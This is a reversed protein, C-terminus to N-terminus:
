SSMKELFDKVKSLFSTSDPQSEEKSCTAFEELLEKQRKSLNVPTEIRVEVVLDGMVGPRNLHPLGKGRMALRRGTQTGAPITLRARGKLTPVDLKGGLGAQAFTIPVHCLLDAGYREFMPHNKVEIMIFLDGAPGGNMGAGGEGTLRIRTGTDVGPPIKVTLTKESRQRGQGRCSTCPNRIIKGRGSCASCPRAISFFGQQARVQGVGGCTTCVEPGSGSQSGSGKCPECPIITPIRLREESGNMVTELDVALDYRFDEGRNNAGRGRGGGRGGFIDGFFEEFIDGFGGGPGGGYGAGGQGDQGLGAHGYQDYIARKKPDKLVEYASGIEKFRTEAEKDDPNRDPHHKMALKRFASKLGKDDVDRSVGLTEYYDKPM